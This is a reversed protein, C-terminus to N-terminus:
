NINIKNLEKNLTEQMQNVENLKTSQPSFEVFNKYSIIADKIREIKKDLVSNFAIQYQSVFIYYLADERKKTDPFDNLFNAFQVSSSKYNEIKYYLLGNQYHKNELKSRLEDIKTNAENLKSSIPYLNVFAQFRKISEDTKSQDLNYKPSLNYLALASQFLSEEALPSSPYNTHFVNFQHSATVFNKDGFNAQATKFTVEQIDKIDTLLPTAKEYLLVAESYKKKILQENATSMIFDKNSSKLARDALSLCSTLSILLLFLIVLRFYM